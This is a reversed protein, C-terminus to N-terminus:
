WTRVPDLALVAQQIRRGLGDDPPPYYLPGAADVILLLARAMGIAAVPAPASLCDALETLAEEHRRVATQHAEAALAPRRAM